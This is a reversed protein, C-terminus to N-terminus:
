ESVQLTFQGDVLHADSLLQLWGELRLMKSRLGGGSPKLRYRSYIAKLLVQHRKLLLDVEETYLRDTRFDNQVHRGAAPLHLPHCCAHACCDVHTVVPLLPQFPVFVCQVQEVGEAEKL